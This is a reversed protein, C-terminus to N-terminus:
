YIREEERGDVEWFIEASTLDNFDLGKEQCFQLYEDKKYESHHLYYDRKTIEGDILLNVLEAENYYGELKM